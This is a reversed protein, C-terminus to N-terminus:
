GRAQLFQSSLPQGVAPNQDHDVGSGCGIELVRDDPRLHKLVFMTEVQRQAPDAISKLEADSIQRARTSWYDRQMQDQNNSM